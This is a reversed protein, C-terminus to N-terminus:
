KPDAKDDDVEEFDGPDGTRKIYDRGGDVAIAGCKCWVMDHRHKSEIVDGCKRCKAINRPRGRTLWDWVLLVILLPISFPTECEFLGKLGQRALLHMHPNIM